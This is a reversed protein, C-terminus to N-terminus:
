MLQVVDEDVTVKSGQVLRILRHHAERARAECEGGPCFCVVHSKPCRPAGPKGCVFCRQKVLMSIGAFSRGCNFAVECLTNQEENQLNQLGVLFYDNPGIKRPCVLVVVIGAAYYDLMQKNYEVVNFCDFARDNFHYYLAFVDPDPSGNFEQLLANDRTLTKPKPEVDNVTKPPAAIQELNERRVALVTGDELKVGIRGEPAKQTLGKNVYGIKGNHQAAKVLGQVRVKEGGTLKGGDSM